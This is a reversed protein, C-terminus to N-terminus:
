ELPSVEPELPESSRAYLVRVALLVAMVLVIQKHRM